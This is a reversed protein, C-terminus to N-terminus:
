VGSTLHKGETVIVSGWICVPECLIKTNLDTHKRRYVVTMTYLQYYTETPEVERWVENSKVPSSMLLFPSLTGSMWLTLVLHFHTTLKHGLWKSRLSPFGPFWQYSAPRAEFCTHVSSISREQGHRSNFRSDETTWGFAHKNQYRPQKTLLRYAHWAMKDCASVHTEDYLFM